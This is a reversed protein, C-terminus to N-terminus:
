RRVHRRRGAIAGVLSALLLTAIVGTQVADAHGSAGTSQALGAAGANVSGMPKGGQQELPLVQVIADMSGNSPQGIAFVRTLTGAKVPLPLPGLLPTSGGTPVLDVSYTDAPVVMTVFEGNGINSFLVKGSARVDAPPVVATHAVTLRGKGAPVPGIDNTFTTVVPKTTSDAPWHLVVDMSPRDALWSSRVTWTKSRFEVSHTGEPLRLPGLVASTGVGSKVLKGDVSVDVSVKPVGQVLYVACDTDAAAAVSPAAALALLAGCLCTLVTAISRVSPPLISM